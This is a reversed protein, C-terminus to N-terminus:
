RAGGLLTPSVGLGLAARSQQARCAATSPAWKARKKLMPLPLEPLATAHRPPTLWRSLPAACRAPWAPGHCSGLRRSAQAKSGMRGHGQGQM